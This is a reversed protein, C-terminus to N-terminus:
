HHVPRLIRFQKIQCEGGARSRVVDRDACIRGDASTNVYFGRYYDLAPCSNELQARIRTRDHLVLDFGEPGLLTSGAIRSTEICHPGRHERWEIAPDDPAVGRPARTIRIIVQEHLTFTGRLPPAPARQAVSSASLALLITAAIGARIM